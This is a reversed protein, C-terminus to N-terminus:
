RIKDTSSSHFLIITGLREILMANAIEDHLCLDYIRGVFLRIAKYGASAIVYIIIADHVLNQSLLNLM